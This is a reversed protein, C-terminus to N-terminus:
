WKVVIQTWVVNSADIHWAIGKQVQARFFSVNEKVNIGPFFLDFHPKATQVGM